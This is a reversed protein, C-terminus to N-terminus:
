RKGCGRRLRSRFRVQREDRGVGDAEHVDAGGVQPLVIHEGAEALRELLRALLCQRREIGLEDRLDGGEVAGGAKDKEVFALAGQGKDHQAEGGGELCRFHHLGVDGVGLFRDVGALGDWTHLRDITPRLDGGIDSRLMGAFIRM